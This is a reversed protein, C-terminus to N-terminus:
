WGIASRLPSSGGVIRPEYGLARDLQAVPAFLLLFLIGGNGMRKLLFDERKTLFPDGVGAYGLNFSFSPSSGENQM